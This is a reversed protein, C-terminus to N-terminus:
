LKKLLVVTECHATHPFMDIPQVLSIRFDTECLMKLDRALTAPNCSVYIIKDPKLQLIKEPLTPHMGARPPDIIVVDPQGYKNVLDDPNTLIEKLDGKIFECNNINNLQCNRRADRIAHSILECGIVKKVKDAIFIAISGTGSYLDYVVQDKQFEGWEDILEYMKESQLTNTQFFSNASIRYKKSGLMEEIYGPGTLVQEEDGFAVQAKKRNVNHIVTTIFPFQQKLKCALKQVDERGNKHEASILNVMVQGLRKSERIVLFRWFGSHGRATYPALDSNRAYDRVFNLIQNSRESLLFCQTIDLVKDYIRPIHLGLAFNRNAVQTSGIEEPLLWRRNSFSFEMKNRYYFIESSPVIPLVEIDAFRGIHEITQKVQSQKQALQQEYDLNQFSCGGCTGFFSCRPTVEDPSHTIIEIVRAEAYNEKKRTIQAKVKQHPLARKIFITFGDLHAVANGGLALSEVTVEVIDNRKLSKM